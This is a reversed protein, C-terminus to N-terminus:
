CQNKGNYINKIGVTCTGTAYVVEVVTPSVTGGMVNTWRRAQKKRRLWVMYVIGGLVGVGIVCSIAIGAIAGTTLRPEMTIDEALDHIGLCFVVPGDDEHAVIYKMIKVLAM